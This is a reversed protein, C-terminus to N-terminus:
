SCIVILTLRGSIGATPDSASWNCVLLPLCASCLAIRIIVTIGVRLLRSLIAIRKREVRDVKRCANRLDIRRAYAAVRLESCVARNGGSDRLQRM